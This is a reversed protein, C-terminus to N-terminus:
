PRRPEVSPTLHLPLHLRLTSLSSTQPQSIPSPHHSLFIKKQLSLEPKFCSDHHFSSVSQNTLKVLKLAPSDCEVQEEVHMDQPTTAHLSFFLSFDLQCIAPTQPGCSHCKPARALTLIGGSALAGLCFKSAASRCDERWQDGASRAEDKYCPEAPKM